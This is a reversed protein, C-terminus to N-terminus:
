EGWLTILLKGATYTADGGDVGALYLYQGAAPTATLYDVSGASSAGANILQTETLATIATDEVGTAETAAYLDIDTDGGAPTELCEMKGGAITGCETELLGCLYAAGAGDVGIIDAATGGANLGTLDIYVQTEYIGGKYMSTAHCITGTGNMIGPGPGYTLPTHMVDRAQFAVPQGKIKGLIRGGRDALTKRGLYNFLM